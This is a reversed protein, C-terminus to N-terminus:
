VGYQDFVQLFTAPEPRLRYNDTADVFLIRGQENTVVVTPMVTDVDYGPVGMATGGEHLIGLQKAAQSNVDVWFRFPVEFKAALEKTFAHPQPSILTVQVGRKDLEQYQAAIERVQSMCLPCWNGRYFMYLALKGETSDSRVSNGEMDEVTFLPLRKGVQLYENEGRGYVSYWYVYGLWYVINFTTFIAPFIPADEQLFYALWSLGAGAVIVATFGGLHESTRAVKPAMLWAVFGIITLNTILVGIWGWGQAFLAYLAYIATLLLVPLYLSLYGAKLRAM